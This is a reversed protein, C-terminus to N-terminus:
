LWWFSSAVLIDKLLTISLCVTTCGYLTINNLSLFLHATMILCLSIKFAYQKTFPALRFLSYIICNWSYSIKSFPFICLCYFSWHHGPTYPLLFSLIPPACSFNLDTFNNWTFSYYHFYTMICKDLSMSCYLM